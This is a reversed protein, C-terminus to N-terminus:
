SKSTILTTFCDYNLYVKYYRNILWQLIEAVLPFNPNRFNEMSVLRPYGLARLMETFDLCIITEYCYNIKFIEKTNSRLERYSM